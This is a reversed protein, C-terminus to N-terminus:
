KFNHEKDMLTKARQNQINDRIQSSIAGLEHRTNKNQSFVSNKNTHINTSVEQRHHRIRMRNAEEKALM